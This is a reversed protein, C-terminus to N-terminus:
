NGALNALSFEVFIEPFCYITQNKSIALTLSFHVSM